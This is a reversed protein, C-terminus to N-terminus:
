RIQLVRRSKYSLKTPHIPQLQKFYLHNQTTRTIAFKGGFISFAATKGVELGVSFRDNFREWRGNTEVVREFYYERKGTLSAFSLGDHRYRVGLRQITKNNKNQKQLLTPKISKIQGLQGSGFKLDGRFSLVGSREVRGDYNTDILCIQLREGVFIEANLPANTTCFIDGTEPFQVKCLYMM